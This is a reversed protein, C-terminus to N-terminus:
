PQNRPDPEIQDAPVAAMGIVLGHENMGDFPMSPADLLALRDEIPLDTLNKLQSEKFGLYTIDVMSVSAYGRSTHIYYCPLAIIGISTADTFGITVTGLRLSLSCAWGYLSDVSSNQVHQSITTILQSSDYSAKEASGKEDGGFYTM